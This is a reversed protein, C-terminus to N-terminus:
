VSSTQSADDDIDQVKNVIKECVPCYHYVGCGGGALGYGAEWTEPDHPCDEKGPEPVQQEALDIHIFDM